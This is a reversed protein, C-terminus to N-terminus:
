FGLHDFRLKKKKNSLFCLEDDAEFAISKRMMKKGSFNEGLTGRTTMDIEEVEFNFDSIRKHEREERMKRSSSSVSDFMLALRCIESRKKPKRPAKPIKKSNQSRKSNKFFSSSKKRSAGSFKQKMSSNSFVLRKEKSPTNFLNPIIEKERSAKTFTKLKYDTDKKKRHGFGLELNKCGSGVFNLYESEIRREFKNSIKKFNREGRIQALAYEREKAIIWFNGIIMRNKNFDEERAIRKGYKQLFLYEFEKAKIVLSGHYNMRRDRSLYYKNQNVTNVLDSFRKMKSRKQKKERKKTRKQHSHKESSFELIPDRQSFTRFISLKPPENETLLDENKLGFPHNIKLMIKSASKELTLDELIEFQNEKIGRDLDYNNDIISYNSFYHIKASDIERELEIWRDKLEGFASDQKELRSFFNFNIKM